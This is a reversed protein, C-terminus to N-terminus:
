STGGSRSCNLQPGTRPQAPGRFLPMVTVPSRGTWQEVHVLFDGLPLLATTNLSHHQFWARGVADFCAALHDILQDDSLSVLDVAQLEVNQLAIRPKIERDWRQIDNRWLKQAFM